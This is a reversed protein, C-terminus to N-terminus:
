KKLARAKRSQDSSFVLQSQTWCRIQRCLLAHGRRLYALGGHLIEACTSVSLTFLVYLRDLGARLGEGAGRVEDDVAEADREVVSHATCYYSREDVAGQSEFTRV